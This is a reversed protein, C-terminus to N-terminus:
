INKRHLITNEMNPTLKDKSSFFYKGIIESSSFDVSVFDEMDKIYCRSYFKSNGALLKKGNKAYDLNFDEHFHCNSVDISGYLSTNGLQSKGLVSIGQMSLHRGLSNGFLSLNHNFKSYQLILDQGINNEDIRCISLFNNRQLDLSHRFLNGGLQFRSRFAADTISVKNKFECKEFIIEKNFYIMRGEKPKLDIEGEFICEHFVLESKLYISYLDKDNTLSQLLIDGEFTEGVASFNRGNKLANILQETPSLKKTKIASCSICIIVSLIIIYQIRRITKM